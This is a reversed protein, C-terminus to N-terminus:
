LKKLAEVLSDIHGREHAASIQVRLRAHGEPVVVAHSWSFYPFAALDPSGALAETAIGAEALARKESDKQPDLRAILRGGM